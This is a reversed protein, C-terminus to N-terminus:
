PDRISKYYCNMIHQTTTVAFGRCVEFWFPNHMDKHYRLFHKCQAFLFECPNLEPSYTPLFWMTIGAATLVTHMPVLIDQRNHIPANDLVVVDGRTIVASQVLDIVFLLFDLANNAREGERMHVHIPPSGPELSTVLSVKITESLDYDSILPLREGRATVGRKRVLDVCFWHPVLFLM